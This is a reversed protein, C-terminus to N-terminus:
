PPRDPGIGASAAAAPSALGASLSGVLSGLPWMRLVLPCVLVLGRRLLRLLWLWGGLLLWRPLWLCLCRGSAGPWCRVGSGLGCVRPFLSLLWLGHCPMCFSVWGCVPAM